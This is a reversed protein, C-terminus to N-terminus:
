VQFKINDAAVPRGAVTWTVRRPRSLPDSLRACFSASSGPTAVVGLPTKSWTAAAPANRIGGDTFGFTKTM